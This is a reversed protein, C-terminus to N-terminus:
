VVENWSAQHDTNETSFCEDARDLSEKPETTALSDNENVTEEVTETIGLFSLVFNLREKLRKIELHQNSVLQQLKFLENTQDSSSDTTPQRVLNKSCNSDSGDEPLSRQQTALEEMKNKGAKTPRSRSKKGNSSADTIVAADSSLSPLEAVSTATQLRQLQRVSEKYCEPCLRDDSPCLEVGRKVQHCNWCRETPM